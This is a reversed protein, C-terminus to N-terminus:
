YLIRFCHWIKGAKLIIQQPILELLDSTISLFIWEEIGRWLDCVIFCSGSGLSLNRCELNLISM